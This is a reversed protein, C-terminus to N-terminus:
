KRAMRAHGPLAEKIEVAGLSWLLGGLGFFLPFFLWEAGGVAYTISRYYLPRIAFWVAFYIGIGISTAGLFQYILGLLEHKRLNAEVM